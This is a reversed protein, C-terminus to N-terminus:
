SKINETNILLFGSKNCTHFLLSYAAEAHPISIFLKLYNINLIPIIDVKVFFDFKLFNWFIEFFNCCHYAFYIQWETYNMTINMFLLRSYTTLVATHFLKFNQLFLWYVLFQHQNTKPLIRILVSWITAM